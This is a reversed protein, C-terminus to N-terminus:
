LMNKIIYSHHICDWNNKIFYIALQKCTSNAALNRCLIIEEGIKKEWNATSIFHPKIIRLTETIITSLIISQRLSRQHSLHYLIQKCHLLGLNSGQTQSSRRSFSIAVWELIRTQFIRHVSSGPRSYDVPDCITSCSRALLVEGKEFIDM